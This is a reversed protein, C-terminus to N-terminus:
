PENINIKVSQYGRSDLWKQATDIKTKLDADTARAIRVIIYGQEEFDVQGDPYGAPSRGKIDRMAYAKIVNQDYENLAKPISFEIIVVGKAPNKFQDKCSLLAFVVFSFLLYDILIKCSKMSQNKVIRGERFAAISAATWPPQAALRQDRRSCHQRVRWASLCYM